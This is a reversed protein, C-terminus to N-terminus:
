LDGSTVCQQSPEPINKSCLEYGVGNYVYTYDDLVLGGTMQGLPSDPESAIESLTNPYRGNENLFLEVGFQMAKLDAQARAGSAATRASGIAMLSVAAVIGIVFVIAPILLGIIVLSKEGGTLPHAAQGADAAAKLKRYADITALMVVPMAVITGVLLVLVGLLMVLVTAGSLALLRWKNGKTIRASEKLAEIPGLGKDIVLYPAYMFTLAAIIGPIILLIIGIVVIVNFLIIVAVYKLFDQPHWFDSLRAAAVDDHAKLLFAFSGMALLSGLAYGFLSGALSGALDGAVGVFLVNSMGSIFSTAMSLVIYFLM